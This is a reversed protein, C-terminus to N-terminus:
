HLAYTFIFVVVFPPKNHLVMVTLLDDLFKGKAIPARPGPDDVHFLAEWTNSKAYEAGDDGLLAYVEIGGYRGVVWEAISHPDTAQGRRSRVRQRPPAPTGGGAAGAQLQAVGGGSAGRGGGGGGGGFSQTPM